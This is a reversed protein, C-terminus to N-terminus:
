SPIYKWDDSHAICMALAGLRSKDEQTTIASATFPHGSRQLDRLMAEECWRLNILKGAMELVLWQVNTLSVPYHQQIAAM